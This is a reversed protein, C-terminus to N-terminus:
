AAKRARGGMAAFGVLGSLLLMGSGPLSIPTVVPDGSLVFNDILFGENNGTNDASVNTYLMISIVAQGAAAVGLAFSQGLSSLGGVTGVTTWSGPNFTGPNGIAWAVSLTDTVENNALAFWDLTVTINTLGITSFGSQRVAADPTGVQNDRLRLQNALIAADNTNDSSETWGGGVTNSDARNFNDATITLASAPASFAAAAIAM